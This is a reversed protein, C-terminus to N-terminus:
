VCVNHVNILVERGGGVCGYVRARHVSMISKYVCVCWEYLCVSHVSRLVGWVCM